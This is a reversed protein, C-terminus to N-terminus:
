ETMLESWDGSRALRARSPKGTEQPDDLMEIRRETRVTALPDRCTTHQGETREM